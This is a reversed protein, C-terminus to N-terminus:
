FLGFLLGTVISIPGFGTIEDSILSSSVEETVSSSISELEDITTVVDSTLEENSFGSSAVGSLGSAVEETAFVEVDPYKELHENIYSTSDTAKLQIEQTIGTEDTILVDSGPNNLDGHLIAESDINESNYADVYSMEHYVGKTNSVIGSLQESSLGSLYSGIEEASFESLTPNARQLAELVLNFKEESLHQSGSVLSAVGISVLLTSAAFKNQYKEPIVIFHKNGRKEYVTTANLNSSVNKGFKNAESFRSFGFELSMGVEFVM